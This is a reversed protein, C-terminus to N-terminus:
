KNLYFTAYHILKADCWASFTPHTLFCPQAIIVLHAIKEICHTCTNEQSSLAILVLHGLDPVVTNTCYNLVVFLCKM